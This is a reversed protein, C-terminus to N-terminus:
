GLLRSLTKADYPKGKSNVFGADALAAGIKRLSLKKGGRPKRSLRKAAAYLEPQTEDLRKRGECKGKGDRTLQGQEGNRKRTEIRGKKLKAVILNKDLEAFVGQVQIMARRMPDDQLARTVNEGTNASILEFGEKALFMVIQEQIALNRALRDMSEIIVVPKPENENDSILELMATRDTEEKTGSIGREQYSGVLNLGHKEAYRRITEEQRAFGTGDVQGLGSVRLYAVAKEM